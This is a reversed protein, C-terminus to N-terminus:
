VTILNLPAKFMNNKFVKEFVERQQKTAGYNYSTTQMKGNKDLYFVDYVNYNIGYCHGRTAYGRNMIQKAINRYQYSVIKTKECVKEFTYKKM